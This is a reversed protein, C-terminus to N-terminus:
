FEVWYGSWGHRAAEFRSAGCRRLFSEFGQRTFHTLHVDSFYIADSLKPTDTMFTTWSVKEANFPVSLFCMAGTRKCYKSIQTVLTAPNTLHEITSICVVMDFRTPDDATWLGDDVVIGHREAAIPKVYPNSDYGTVAVGRDKGVRLFTGTGCGIELVARLDPRRQAASDWLEKAWGSNREEVSVHWQADRRLQDDPERYIQPHM